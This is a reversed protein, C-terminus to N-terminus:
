QLQSCTAMVSVFLGAICGLRVEGALAFLLTLTKIWLKWMRSSNRYLSEYGTFITGHVWRYRCIRVTYNEQWSDQHHFVRVASVIHTGNGLNSSASTSGVIERISVLDGDVWPSFALTLPVSQENPRCRLQLLAGIFLGAVCIIWARVISLQRGCCRKPKRGRLGWMLATGCLVAVVFGGVVISSDM